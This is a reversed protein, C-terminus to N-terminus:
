KSSSHWSLLWPWCSALKLLSQLVRPPPQTPAHFLTEVYVELDELLSSPLVLVSVTSNTTAATLELFDQIVDRPNLVAKFPIEKLLVHHYFIQLLPLM